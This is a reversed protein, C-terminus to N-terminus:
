NDFWSLFDNIVPHDLIFNGVKDAVSTVVEKAPTLDIVVRDVPARSMSHYQKNDWYGENSAIIQNETPLQGKTFINYLYTGAVQVGRPVGIESYYTATYYYNFEGYDMIRGNFNVQNQVAVAKGGVNTGRYQQDHFTPSDFTIITLPNWWRSDFDQSATKQENILISDTIVLPQYPAPPMRKLAPATTQPTLPSQAKLGMPDILLLPNGAAYQYPNIQQPDLSLVPDRSLFRASASDYYRFRMYYLSTGPEQMVGRQGQFTFPNDSTGMQTVTEGYPTIGYADTVSGDDGTLMTTSGSEDFSYYRHAGDAAEISYLLSGDPLYVYYRLDAGGSQVTAVSPLATAYNLVYNQTTGDAATRSIRQRFGDYTFSAAGDAGSYSLLRGAMDWTYSRLGDNTIKGAGDYIAGTLQHAADYGAPLVGSAMAPSQPLNRDASVVRGAADRQLAISLLTDSGGTETIGALRRDKDYTFQAM